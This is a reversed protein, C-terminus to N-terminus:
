LETEPNTVRSSPRPGPPQATHFKYATQISRQNCIACRGKHSGAASQPDPLTRPYLRATPCLWQTNKQM